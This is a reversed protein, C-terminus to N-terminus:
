HLTPRNHHPLVCFATWLNTMSSMRCSPQDVAQLKCFLELHFRCREQLFSSNRSTGCRHMVMLMPSGAALKQKLNSSYAGADIYM